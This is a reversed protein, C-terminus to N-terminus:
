VGGAGGGGLGTGGGSGGGGLQGAGGSGGLGTGGGMGGTAGDPLAGDMGADVPAGGGMSPAERDGCNLRDACEAECGPALWLLAAGLAAGLLVHSLWRM